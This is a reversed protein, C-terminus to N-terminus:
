IHILSLSQVGFSIRNVGAAKLGCFYANDASEPNCEMSIESGYSIDAASLIDSIQEATLLSPTGGGFYVTDYTLGAAKINRIVARVYDDARSMDAASYFDCYLCKRKCFPVHVYLGASQM